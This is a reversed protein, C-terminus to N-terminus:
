GYIRFYETHSGCDVKMYDDVKWVRKYYSKFNKSDLFDNIEEWAEETTTIKDSILVLDGNAREFYVKM